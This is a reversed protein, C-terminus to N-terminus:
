EAKVLDSAPDRSLDTTLFSGAEPLRIDYESVLQISARLQQAACNLVHGGKTRDKSIFHFHYGPVSFSSSYKPSWLCVLTGEINKFDFELETRAADLLRTGQPVPHVARAHMTDFVGDLRVAYFLNGSVRHPDCALEIDKLCAVNEIQFVADEHFHTVSAFPVPFDDSRRRVNGAAQYIEGDLIVMEGNLGEFTGVGFNGQELLASSWVSGSYVGEVLATSTSIQYMRRPSSHLYESLAANVLSDISTRRQTSLERAAAELPSPITVALDAM